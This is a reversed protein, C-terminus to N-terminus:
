RRLKVKLKHGMNSFSRKVKRGFRKLPGAQDFFGPPSTGSVRADREHITERKPGFQYWRRYNPDKWPLNAVGNPDLFNYKYKKVPKEDQDASESDALGSPPITDIEALEGEHQRVPNEIAPAKNRMEEEFIRPRSLDIPPTREPSEDDESEIWVSQGLPGDDSSFTIDVRRQVFIQPPDTIREQVKGTLPPIALQSLRNSINELVRRGLSESPVPQAVVSTSTSPYESSARRHRLHEQRRRSRRLSAHIASVTRENLGYNGTGISELPGFTDDGLNLPTDDDPTVPEATHINSLGHDYDAFM